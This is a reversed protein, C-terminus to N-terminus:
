EKLQKLEREASTAANTADTVQSRLSDYESKKDSLKGAQSIAVAGTGIAGVGGVVTAAIWAKRQKECNVIDNDITAIDSRLTAIIEADSMGDANTVESNTYGAVAKSTKHKITIAGTDFSLFLIPVLFVFIRPSNVRERELNGRTENFTHMNKGKKCQAHIIDYKAYMPLYRATVM